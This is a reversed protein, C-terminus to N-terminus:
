CLILLSEIQTGDREIAALARRGSVETPVEPFANPPRLNQKSNILFKTLTNTPTATKLLGNTITRGMKLFFIDFFADINIGIMRLRIPNWVFM